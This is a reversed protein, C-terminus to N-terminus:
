PSPPKPMRSDLVQTTIQTIGLTHILDDHDFLPLVSVSNHLENVITDFLQQWIKLSMRGEPTNLYVLYAQFSSPLDEATILQKPDPSIAMMAAVTEYGHKIESELDERKRHTM